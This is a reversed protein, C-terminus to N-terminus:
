FSSIELLFCSFPQEQSPFFSQCPCDSPAPACPQERQCHQTEAQWLEPQRRASRHCSSGLGAQSTTTTHSLSLICDLSRNTEWLCMLLVMMQRGPKEQLVRQVDGFPPQAKETRIGFPQPQQPKSVVVKLIGEKKRYWTERVDDTQHCSRTSRQDEM